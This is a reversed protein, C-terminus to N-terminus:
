AMLAALAMRILHPRLSEGEADYEHVATYGILAHAAYMATRLEVTSSEPRLQALVRLWESMYLETMSSLKRRANDTLNQEEAKNLPYALRHVGLAFDVRMEVLERLLQKPRANTGVIRNTAEMIPKMGEIVVADLLLQKNPFHRYLAPGTIGAGKGIEDVGAGHYGRALFHEAAVALIKERRSAFSPESIPVTVM